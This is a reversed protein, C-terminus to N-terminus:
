TASPNGCRADRAACALACARGTKKNLPVQEGCPIGSRVYSIVPMRETGSQAAATQTVCETRSVKPTVGAASVLHVAAAALPPYRSCFHALFVFRVCCLEEAIVMM